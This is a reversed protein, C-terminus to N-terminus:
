RYPQFVNGNSPLCTALFHQCLGLWRWISCKRRRFRGEIRPNSKEDHETYLGDTNCRSSLTSTFRMLAFYCLGRRHGWTRGRQYRRRSFAAWCGCEYGRPNDSTQNQAVFVLFARWLTSTLFTFWLGFERTSGVFFISGLFFSGSSDITSQSQRAEYGFLKTIPTTITEAMINRTTAVLLERQWVVACSAKSSEATACRLEDYGTPTATIKALYRSLKNSVGLM